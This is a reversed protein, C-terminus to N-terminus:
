TIGCGVSFSAARRASEVYCLGWHGLRRGM